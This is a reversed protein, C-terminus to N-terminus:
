MGYERHQAVRYSVRNLFVLRVVDKHIRVRSSSDDINVKAAIIMLINHYFNIVQQTIFHFIKIVTATGSIVQLHIQATKGITKIHQM